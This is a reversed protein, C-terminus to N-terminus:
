RYPTRTGQVASSDIAGVVRGVSNVAPPFDALITVFIALTDM